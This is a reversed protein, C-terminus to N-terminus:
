TEELKKTSPIMEWIYPNNKKLYFDIFGLFRSYLELLSVAIIKFIDKNNTFCEKFFVEFLLSTDSSAVIYDHNKKLWEHGIAIRKRQKIFDRITEPGKNQVIANPVYACSFGHKAVLAEISAEDVASEHPIADFLKRFAIMEGLKPKRMAMEHHLKWLLNVAYGIFNDEKNVPVPRGGTMGVTDNYFPILLEEIASHDPITDASIVVMLDSKAKKLFFNIASSKGKRKDEIFLLIKDYKKCYDMVIENTKDTSGSSVVIIEDIKVRHLKQNILSDIINSINKEENYAMVGISCYLERVYEYSDTTKLKVNQTNKKEDQHIFSKFCKSINM